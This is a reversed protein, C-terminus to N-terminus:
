VPVFIWWQWITAKFYIILQLVAVFVCISFMCCLMFSFFILLYVVCKLLCFSVCSFVCLLEILLVFFSLFLILQFLILQTGSKVLVIYHKFINKEKLFCYCLHNLLNNNLSFCVSNLFILSKTFYLILVACWQKSSSEYYIQQSVDLCFLRYHPDWTLNERLVETEVCSMFMVALSHHNWVSRGLSRSMCISAYLCLFVM